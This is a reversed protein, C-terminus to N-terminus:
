VDAFIMFSNTKKGCPSKIKTKFNHGNYNYTSILCGSKVNSIKFHWLHTVDLALQNTLLAIQLLMHMTFPTNSASVSGKWLSVDNKSLHMYNKWPLPYPLFWPRHQCSNFRKTKKIRYTESLCLEYNSNQM